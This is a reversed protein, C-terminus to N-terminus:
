GCTAATAAAETTSWGFGPTPQASLLETSCEEPAENFAACIADLLSASDRGASVTAGNIVLTPSGGIGYAENEAKHIDFMPFRGSLWSSQDELNAIINFEADTAAYCSALKTEDIGVETM